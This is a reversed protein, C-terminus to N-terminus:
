SAPQDAGCVVPSPCPWSPRLSQNIIMWIELYEERALPEPHLGGSTAFLLPHQLHHQYHHYPHRPPHRRHHRYIDSKNTNCPPRAPATLAYGGVVVSMSAADAAVGVMLAMVAVM